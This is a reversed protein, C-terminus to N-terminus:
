CIPPMRRIAAPRFSRRRLATEVDYLSIGQRPLSVTGDTDIVKGRPSLCEKEDPVIDRPLYRTSIMGGDEFKLSREIVNRLERVNGPWDYLRFARV